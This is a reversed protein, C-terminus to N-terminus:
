WAIAGKELYDSSLSVSVPKRKAETGTAAPVLIDGHKYQPAPDAATLSSRVSSLFLVSAIMLMFLSSNTRM